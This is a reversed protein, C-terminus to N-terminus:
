RVNVPSMVVTTDGKQLGGATADKLLAKDLLSLGTSLATDRDIQAEKLFSGLDNFSQSSGKDFNTSSIEKVKEMLKTHCETIRKHNYLKEAERM